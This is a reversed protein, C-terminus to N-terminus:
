VPLFNHGFYLLTSKLQDGQVNSPQGSGGGAFNFNTPPYAMHIYRDVMYICIFPTLPPPLPEDMLYEGNDVATHTHPTDIVDRGGRYIADNPATKNCVINEPKETRRCNGM